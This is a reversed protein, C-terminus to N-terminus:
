PWRYQRGHEFLLRELNMVASLTTDALPRTLEFAETAVCPLGAQGCGLRGQKLGKVAGAGHARKCVNGQELVPVGAADEAVGGHLMGKM